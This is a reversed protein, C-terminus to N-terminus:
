TTETCQRHCLKHWVHLLSLVSTASSLKMGSCAFLSCVRFGYILSFQHPSPCVSRFRWLSADFMSGNRRAKRTNPLQNCFMLLSVEYITTLRSIGKWSRAPQRSYRPIMPATNSWILVASCFCKMTISNHEKTTGSQTTVHWSTPSFFSELM